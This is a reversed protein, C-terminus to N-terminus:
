CGAEQIAPPWSGDALCCSPRRTQEIEVLIHSSVLVTKGQAALKELLENIERRGGPDIGLLPEDLLMLWPDHVLAQALKIRQRMGHSCGALRRHARDAMGVEEM